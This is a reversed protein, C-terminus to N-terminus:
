VHRLVGVSARRPLRDLAIATPADTSLCSVIRAKIADYSDFCWDEHHMLPGRVPVIAIGDARKEVTPPSTMDFFLDWAKPTIACPEPPAFRARKM